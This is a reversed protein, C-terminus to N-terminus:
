IYVGKGKNQQAIAPLSQEQKSGGGTSATGSGGSGGHFGRGYPWSSAEDRNAAASSGAHSRYDEGDDMPAPAQPRPLPFPFPIRGESSPGPRLLGERDSPIGFFDKLFDDFAKLEGGEHWADNGSLSGGAGQAHPDTTQSSRHLLQRRQSPCQMFWSVDKQESGKGNVFRTQLSTEMSFACEPHQKKAVEVEPPVPENGPSLSFGFPMNGCFALDCTAPARARPARNLVFRLYETYNAVFARETVM